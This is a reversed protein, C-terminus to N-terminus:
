RVAAGDSEPAANGGRISNSANSAKAHARANKKNILDSVDSLETEGEKQIVCKQKKIFIKKKKFREDSLQQSARREEAQAVRKQPRVGGRGRGRRAREQGRKGEQVVRKQLRGRGRGRGRRGRGEKSGVKGQCSERQRRRRCERATL